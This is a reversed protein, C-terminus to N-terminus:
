AKMEKSDPVDPMSERAKSERKARVKSELKARAQKRWGPGKIVLMVLVGVFATWIGAAITATWGFGVRNALPVVLAAAGAGMECRVLNNAATATAPKGPYMDIMLIAMCNFSATISYGIFFLFV